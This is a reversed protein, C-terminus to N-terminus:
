IPTDKNDGKSVLWNVTQNSNKPEHSIESISITRIYTKISHMEQIYDNEIFKYWTLCKSWCFFM